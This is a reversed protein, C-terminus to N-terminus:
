WNAFLSLDKSLIRNHILVLFHVFTCYNSSKYLSVCSSIIFLLCTCPLGKMAEGRLTYYVLTYLALLFYAGTVTYPLYSLWYVKQSDDFLPIGIIQFSVRGISYLYCSKSFPTKWKWERYITPLSRLFPMFTLFKVRQNLMELGTHSILM